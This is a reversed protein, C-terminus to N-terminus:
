NITKSDHTKINANTVLFQRNPVAKAANQLICKLEGWINELKGHNKVKNM